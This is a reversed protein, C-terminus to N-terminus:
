RNACGRYAEALRSSAASYDDLAPLLRLRSEELRQLAARREGDSVAIMGKSSQRRLMAAVGDISAAMDGAVDTM